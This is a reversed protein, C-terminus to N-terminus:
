DVLNLLHHAAEVHVGHGPGALVELGPDLRRHFNVAVEKFLIIEVRKEKMNKKVRIYDSM